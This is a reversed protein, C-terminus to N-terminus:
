VASYEEIAERLVDLPPSQRTWQHISRGLMGVQMDESAVVRYGLEILLEAPASSATDVVLTAFDSGRWDDFRASETELLSVIILNPSDASDPELEVKEASKLLSHLAVSRHDQKTGVQAWRDIARGRTEFHERIFDALWLGTADLLSWGVRSKANSTRQERFLIDFAMAPQTTDTVCDAQSKDVTETSPASDTTANSLVTALLSQTRAWINAAESLSPDILVGEVGLVDLGDLAVHLKSAEVDFSLVRWDLKMAAFARELAFQSANGAIPHGLVAIVPETTRDM